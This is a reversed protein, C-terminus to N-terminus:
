RCRGGDLRSVVEDHVWSVAPGVVLDDGEGDTASAAKELSRCAPPRTVQGGAASGGVLKLLTTLRRPVGDRPALLDNLALMEIIQALDYGNAEAAAVATEVHARVLSLEVVMEGNDTTEERRGVPSARDASSTQSAPSSVGDAAPHPIEPPGVDVPVKLVEGDVGVLPRGTVGLVEVRQPLPEDSGLAATAGGTGRDASTLTASLSVLAVVAATALAFRSGNRSM